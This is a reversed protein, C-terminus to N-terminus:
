RLQIVPFNRGDLWIHMSFIAGCHRTVHATSSCGYTMLTVDPNTLDPGLNWSESLLPQQTDGALVEKEEPRFSDAQVYFPVGPSLPLLLAVRRIVMGDPLSM